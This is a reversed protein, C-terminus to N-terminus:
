IDADEERANLATQARPDSRLLYNPIIMSALSIFHSIEINCIYTIYANYKSVKFVIWQVSYKFTREKAKGTILSVNRAFIIVKVNYLYICNKKGCSLTVANRFQDFCLPCEFSSDTRM